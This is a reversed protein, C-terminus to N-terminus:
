IYLISLVNPFKTLYFGYDKYYYVRITDETKVKSKKMRDSVLKRADDVFELLTDKNPNGLTIKSFLVDNTSGNCAGQQLKIINSMHDKMFIHSFKVIDGKYPVDIDIEGPILVKGKSQKENYRYSKYKEEEVYFFDTIQDKSLVYIYELVDRYFTSTSIFHLQNM